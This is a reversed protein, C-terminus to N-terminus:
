KIVNIVVIVVIVVVVVVLSLLIVLAVFVMVVDLRKNSRVAKVDTKARVPVAKRIGKAVVLIIIMGPPGANEVVLTM